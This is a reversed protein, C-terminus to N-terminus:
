TEDEVAELYKTMIYGQSTVSWEDAMLYVKVEVGKKKFKRRVNGRISFRAKLNGRTTVFKKGGEFVEPESFSLFDGRVWGGGTECVMSIEYWRGIKQGTLVVRDGPFVRAVEDSHKNASRRVVVESNPQCMVWAEEPVEALAPFAFFLSLILAVIRKM